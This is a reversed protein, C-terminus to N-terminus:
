LDDGINIPNKSVLVQVKFYAEVDSAMTDAVNEEMTAQVAAEVPEVPVTTETEETISPMETGEGITNMYVIYEKVARYIASAIYDQGEESNLYKEETPNSIFGTEILVCPMSAQVLVWFGAREIGRDKRRAREKFQKQILNAMYVSHEDHVHKLLNFMIYSEDSNPDFGEYRTRYDEELLMVSNERKAVELNEESRHLGLIHSSTGYPSTKTNSNVHVSLFLDANNENAFEPRKYLEVTEDTTRTYLVKVSDIKEEIYKGAKLSIALTLDKEQSISGLAGPDRGGHGPDLVLTFPKKLQAYTKQPM